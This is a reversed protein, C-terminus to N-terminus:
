LKAHVKPPPLAPSTNRLVSVSQLAVLLPAPAPVYLQQDKVGGRPSPLPGGGVPKVRLRLAPAEAVVGM